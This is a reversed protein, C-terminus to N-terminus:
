EGLLKSVKSQTIDLCLVCIVEQGFRKQFVIYIPSTSFDLRALYARGGLPAREFFRKKFSSQIELHLTLDASADLARLDVKCKSRTKSATIVM